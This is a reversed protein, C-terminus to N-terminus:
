VGKGFEVSLYVAAMVDVVDRLLVNVDTAARPNNLLNMEIGHVNAFVGVGKWILM